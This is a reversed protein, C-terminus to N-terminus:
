IRERRKRGLIIKKLGAAALQIPRRVPRLFLWVRSVAVYVPQTSKIHKGRRVIEVLIGKVQDPALPGEVQTQNDGVLYIGEQTVRCIRHLVLIGQERRYLVVDGRRLRHDALPAIVAEDRGPVFLPYMSYGEPHLQITRGEALLAEIDLKQTPIRKERMM